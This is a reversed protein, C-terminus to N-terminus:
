LRDLQSAEDQYQEPAKGPQGQQQGGETDVAHHCMRDGLPGPLDANTNREPGRPRDHEPLHEPLRHQQRERAQDEPGDRGQGQRSEDRCQEEADPRGVRHGIQSGGQQEGHM